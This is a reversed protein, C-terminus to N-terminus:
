RLLPASADFLRRAVDRRPLEEFLEVVPLEEDSAFSRVVDHLAAPAGVDLFLVLGRRRERCDARM